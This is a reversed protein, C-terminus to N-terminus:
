RSVPSTVPVVDANRLRSTPPEITAASVVGGIVGMVGPTKVVPRRALAARFNESEEGTLVYALQTILASRSAEDLQQDPKFSEVAATASKIQDPTLQYRELLARAAVIAFTQTSPGDKTTIRITRGGSGPAMLTRELEVFQQETLTPALASRLKLRATNEVQDVFMSAIRRAEANAEPTLRLDDITNHIHSRTSLVGASDGFGYGGSRLNQLALSVFELRRATLAHLESDDLAGDGSTDGRAVIVQMRESLEATAVKGDGNRDFVMLRAVVQDPTVRTEPPTSGAITLHLNRVTPLDQASVMAASSIMLLLAACGYRM